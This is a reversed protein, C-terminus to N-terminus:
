PKFGMEAVTERIAALLARMDSEFLRGINGIRFCDANSVKGPYIVFRRAKLADYAKAFTFVPDDPYVFSTIFPSQHEPRLLTRFGRDAM